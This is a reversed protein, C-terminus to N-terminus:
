EIGDLYNVTEDIKTNGKVRFEFGIIVTGHDDLFYPMGMVFKAGGTGGGGGGEPIM